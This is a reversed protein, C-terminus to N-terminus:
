PDGRNGSDKGSMIGARTLARRPQSGPPPWALLEQKGLWFFQRFGGLLVLLMVKTIQIGLDPTRLNVNHFDSVTRRPYM